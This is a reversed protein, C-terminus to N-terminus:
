LNYLKIFTVRSFYFLEFASFHFIKLPIICRWKDCFQMEEQILRTSFWYPCYYWGWMNPTCPFICFCHLTFGMNVFKIPSRLVILLLANKGCIGRVRKERSIDCFSKREPMGCISTSNQAGPQDLDNVNSHAVHSSNSFTFFLNFM